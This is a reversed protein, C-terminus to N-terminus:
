GGLPPRQATLAPAPHRVPQFRASALLLFLGVVCLALNLGYALRFGFHQSLGFLPAALVQGIPFTNSVMTTARGPHSPLLDQVYTIALGSVAAIVVAQLVQAAALMWVATAAAAIAQYGVACLMGLLILRYTPVRVALAGLGLMLPIELAACLGLVLGADRVSGGLETSVYLPLAQVNLVQATQAAVFGVIVLFILPRRAPPPPATAEASGTAPAPVAPLALLIVLVAITYMVAALGYTYGFGRAALVLAALPPGGVWALSFLTRLTSIGLTARTPDHRQLVQRAYAFSQPFLSGAIATLTMTLALLGWYNRIVATLAAGILGALAALVLLQRRIPWRDSARGILWSVAVGSVPAAILFGTTRVPGAHIAETLFLALYPLVFSTAIGVVVFVVALPLLRRM